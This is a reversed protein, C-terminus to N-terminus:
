QMLEAADDNHEEDRRMLGGHTFECSTAPTASSGEFPMLVFRRQAFTAYRKTSGEREALM